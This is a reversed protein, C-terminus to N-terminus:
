IMFQILGRENLQRNSYGQLLHMFIMLKEGSKIKPSDKLSGLVQVIRLLEIFYGRPMRMQDAFRDLSRTSILEYYREGTLISDHQPIREHVCIEQIVKLLAIVVLHMFIVMQAFPPRNM